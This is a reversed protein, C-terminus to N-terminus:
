KGRAPKSAPLFNEMAWIETGGKPDGLCFAIRRGDPHLSVLSVKFGLELKRPEGGGAPISWLEDPKGPASPRGVVLHRGDPTWSLGVGWSFRKGKRLAYLERPDGGSASITKVVDSGVAQTGELFALRRGDPSCALRYVYSNPRHLVRERRTELDFAMITRDRVYYIKKGDKSFVSWRPETYPAATGQDHEVITTFDGTQVDVIHLSDRSQVGKTAGSVLISRGDPSWRPPGHAHGAMMKLSNPSLDREEGTGISRIVLVYGDRTSRRSAYALYKGDPSWFPAYNSGEFRLSVKTPPAVVKGAEFNLTTVYVDRVYGGVGYYLSGDRTIGMPVFKKGMGKVLAPTGKPRGGDVDLMWVGTSGGRDSVFVIRKGDPAWLPAWDDAPHEVPPLDGSGDTSLLHIDRKESGETEELDYVVFRGDPSLSMNRTRRKGLSKLVRISGDAVSVLVIRAESSLEQGEDKKGQIALIYKGDRSWARPWPADVGQKSDSSALVRPKSGDLGVIRLENRGGPEMWFYAVQRSDPSWISVDCFKIPKEWTGEDTLDRNEGTKFDHVALNGEKWNVYSLYRRDPSPQGMDDLAPAWVQRTVVTTTPLGMASLRAKARAVPKTQKPFQDILKRFAIVAERKKGKKLYCMGLRYQARAAYSRNKEAGAVIRQYIKIAADLEGVTDETYLGKELLESTSQAHAIPSTALAMALVAQILTRCRTMPTEKDITAM